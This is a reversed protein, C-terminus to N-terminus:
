EEMIQFNDKQDLGGLFTFYNRMVKLNLPERMRELIKEPTELYNMIEGQYYEKVYAILKPRVFCYFDDADITPKGSKM